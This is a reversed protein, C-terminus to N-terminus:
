ARHIYYLLKLSNIKRNANHEKLKLKVVSDTALMVYSQNYIFSHIHLLPQIIRVPFFQLVLSFVTMTGSQRGNFGSPCVSKHGLVFDRPSLRAVLGQFVFRGDSIINDKTFNNPNKLFWCYHLLSRRKLRLLNCSQKM